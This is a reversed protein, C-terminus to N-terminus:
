KKFSRKYKELFVYESTNKEPRRNHRGCAMTIKPIEGNSLQLTMLPSNIQKKKRLFLINTKGHVVRNVYGGVCHELFKGELVIEKPSKPAIVCYEEDDFYEFRKLKELVKEYMKELHQNKNIIKRYKILDIATRLNKPYKDYGQEKENLKVYEALLSMSYFNFVLGSDQSVICDYDFDSYCHYDEYHDLYYKSADVHEILPPLGQHPLDNILYQTLKKLEYGCSVLEKSRKTLEKFCGLGHDQWLDRFLDVQNKEKAFKYDDLHVFIDNNESLSELFWSDIGIDSLSTKFNKDNIIKTIFDILGASGKDCMEQITKIKSLLEIKTTASKNRLFIPNSFCEDFDACIKFFTRIWDEKSFKILNEYLKNLNKVHSLEGVEINEILEVKRLQSPSIELEKKLIDYKFSKDNKFNFVIHKKDKSETISELGIYETKKIKPKTQKKKTAQIKKLQKIVSDLSVGRNLKLEGLNLGNDSILKPM